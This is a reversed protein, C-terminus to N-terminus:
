RVSERFVVMDCIKPVNKSCLCEDSLDTCDMIGDCVKSQPVMMSQDMCM